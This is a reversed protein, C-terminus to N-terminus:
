PAEPLESLLKQLATEFAAWRAPSLIGRPLEVTVAGGKGARIVGKKGDAIAFTRTADKAKPKGKASVSETLSRFVEAAAPKPSRGALLRAASLVADPDQQYAKDLAVAWRFQIDVPSRFAGVIEQPLEAVRLAKAM